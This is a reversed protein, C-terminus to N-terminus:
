DRSPHVVLLLFTAQSGHQTSAAIRPEDFTMLVTGRWSWDRDGQPENQTVKPINPSTNLSFSYGLRVRRDSVISVDAELTKKLDLSYYRPKKKEIETNSDQQLVPIRRTEGVSAVDHQRVAVRTAAIVASPGESAVYDQIHQACVAKPGQGLPDVGMEYLRLMDVDVVFAEVLVTDHIFPDNSDVVRPQRQVARSRSRTAGMLLILLLALLLVVCSRKWNM